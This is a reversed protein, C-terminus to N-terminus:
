KSISPEQLEAIKALTQLDRIYLPPTVRISQPPAQVAPGDNPSLWPLEYVALPVEQHFRDRDEQGHFFLLLQWPEPWLRSLKALGRALATVTLEDMNQLPDDLILLGLPNELQVACLFFLAVTFLNLQATNLRLDADKEHTQFGLEEKGEPGVRYELVVDEYAWRTPTFLAMLENLAELLGSGQPTGEGQLQRLFSQRVKGGAVGLAQHKSFVDRLTQFSRGGELATEQLTRCATELRELRDLLPKEWDTTGVTVDGVPVTRDSTFAQALAQGLPPQSSGSSAPFLWRSAADMQDLQRRPPLTRQAAPRGAGIELAPPPATLTQLLEDRERAWEAAQKRQAALDTASAPPQGFPGLTGPEPQWGAQRAAALTELLQCHQEALSALACRRLWDNLDSLFDRGSSSGGTAQWGAIQQLGSRATGLTDLTAPLTGRLRELADDIRGLISAADSVAPPEQSWATALQALEPSLAGLTALTTPPLPLCATAFDPPIRSQLEGLWALRRLVGVEPDEGERGTSPLLERLGAPLEELAKDAGEQARQYAILVSSESTFFSGVFVEARQGDGSYILQNMVMQDLRFSSPRLDPRLPNSIGAAGVEFSLPGDSTERQGEHGTFLLTVRAPEVAHDNRIFTNYDPVGDLRDAKGTVVLELAEVMSSKGSGNRGFVLHVQGSELALRRSGPLRYSELEVVALRRRATGDKPESSRSLYWASTAQLLWPFARRLAEHPFTEGTASPTLLNVGIAELFQTERAVQGLAQGIQRLPEPENRSLLILEVTLPLRKELDPDNVLLHRIYTTQDIRQQAEYVLEADKKELRHILGLTGLRPDYILLDPTLDFHHAFRLRPGVLFSAAQIDKLSLARRLGLGELSVALRELLDTSPADSSPQM